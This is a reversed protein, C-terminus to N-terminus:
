QVFSFNYCHLKWQAMSALVILYHKFAKSSRLIRSWDTSVEINRCAASPSSETDQLDRQFEFYPLFSTM